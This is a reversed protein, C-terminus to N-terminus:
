FSVPRTYLIAEERALNFMAKLSVGGTAIVDPEARPTAQDGIGQGPMSNKATLTETPPEVKEAMVPEAFTLVHSIAKGAVTREATKLDTLINVLYYLFYIGTIWLIFQLWSM